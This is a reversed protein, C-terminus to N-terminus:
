VTPTKNLCESCLLAEYNTTQDNFSDFTEVAVCKRTFYGELMELCSMCLLYWVRIPRIYPTTRTCHTKSHEYDFHEYHKLTLNVWISQSVVLPSNVLSILVSKEVSVLSIM